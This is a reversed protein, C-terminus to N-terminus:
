LYSTEDNIKRKGCSSKKEAVIVIEFGWSWASCVELHRLVCCNDDLLWALRNCSFDWNWLQPRVIDEDFDM